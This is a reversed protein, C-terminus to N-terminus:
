EDDPPPPPDDIMEGSEVVQSSVAHEQWIKVLEKKSNKSLEMERLFYEERTKPKGNLKDKEEEISTIQIAILRKIGEEFNKGSDTSNTDTMLSLKLAKIPERLFNIGSPYKVNYPFQKKETSVSTTEGLLLNNRNFPFSGKSIPIFKTHTQLSFGSSNNEYPLVQLNGETFAIKLKGNDSINLDPNFRSLGTLSNDTYFVVALLKGKKDLVQLFKSTGYEVWRAPNRNEIAHIYKGYIYFPCINKYYKVPLTKISSFGYYHIFTLGDFTNSSSEKTMMVYYSPQLKKNQKETYSSDQHIESGEALLNINCNQLNRRRKIKSVSLPSPVIKKEQDGIGTTIQSLSFLIELRVPHITNKVSYIIPAANSIFKLDNESYNNKYNYITTSEIKKITEEKSIFKENNLNIWSLTFIIAIFIIPIIFLIIIIKIKKM